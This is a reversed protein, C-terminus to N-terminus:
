FSAWSFGDHVTVVPANPLSQVADLQHTSEDKWRILRGGDTEMMDKFWLVPGEQPVVTGEEFVDTGLVVTINGPSVYPDVWSLRAESRIVAVVQDWCWFWGLHRPTTPCSGCPPSFVYVDWVAQTWPPRPPRDRWKAVYIKENIVFAWDHLDKIGGCGCILLKDLYNDLELPSNLVGPDFVMNPPVGFGFPLQFPLSAVALHPSYISPISM